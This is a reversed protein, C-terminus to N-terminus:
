ESYQYEHLREELRRTLDQPDVDIVHKSYLIPKDPMCNQAGLAISRSPCRVANFAMEAMASDSFGVVVFFEANCVYSVDHLQSFESRASSPIYYNNGQTATNKKGTMAEIFDAPWRQGGVTRLDVYEQGPESVIVNFYKMHNLIIDRSRFDDYANKSWGCANAIMGAIATASPQLNCEQFLASNYSQMTGSLRLVFCYM